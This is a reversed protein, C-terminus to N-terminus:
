DKETEDRCRLVRNDQAKGLEPSIEDAQMRSREGSVNGMMHYKKCNKCFQIVLTNSILNFFFQLRVWSIKFM